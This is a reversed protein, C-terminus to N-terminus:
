PKQMSYIKKTDVYKSITSFASELLASVVPKPYTFEQKENEDLLALRFDKAAIKAYNQYVPKPLRFSGITISHLNKSDLEQLVQDFFNEYINLCGDIMMMPDFRLGVRYGADQLKKIADLRLKLSPTKHEDRKIIEEPNLTYAILTNKITKLELLPRIQISKTRVECSLHDFKEFFPLYTAAFNSLSDLALSDSDYGSFFCITKDPNMLATKEIEAKFDEDNIFIVYHSSRNMGQLFCYRCDFPCNLVVSFYFNLDFGISFDDPIEHIFKGYKKAIILCPTEKQLRFDQKKRNFIEQYQEILVLPKDKFRDIIRRTHPHDILSKEIYIQHINM